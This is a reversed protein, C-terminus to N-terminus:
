SVTAAPLGSESLCWATVLNEYAQNHCLIVDDALHSEIYVPALGQAPRGRVQAAADEQHLNAAPPESAQSVAASDTHDAAPEPLEAASEAEARVLEAHVAAAAASPLDDRGAASSTM